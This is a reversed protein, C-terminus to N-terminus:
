WFALVDHEFGAHVVRGEPQDQSRSTMAVADTASMAVGSSRTQRAADAAGDSTATAPPRLPQLHANPSPSTSSFARTTHGFGLPSARRVVTTVDRDVHMQTWPIIEGLWHEVTATIEDLRGDLGRARRVLGNRPRRGPPSARAAARRSPRLADSRRCIRRSTEVTTRRGGKDGGSGDRERTGPMLPTGDCILIEGTQGDSRLTFWVCASLHIPLFFEVRPQPFLDGSESATPVFAYRSSAFTLPAAFFPGWNRPLRPPRRPAAVAAGGAHSARRQLGAHPAANSGGGGRNPTVGQSRSRARGEHVTKPVHLTLV